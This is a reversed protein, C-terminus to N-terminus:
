EGEKAPQQLWARVGYKLGNEYSGEHPCAACEYLYTGKNEPNSHHTSYHICSYCGIPEWDDRGENFMKDIWEALEEDSMARIRDANTVPESIPNGVDPNARRNWAADAKKVSRFWNAFTAKCHHCERRYHKTNAIGNIYRERM